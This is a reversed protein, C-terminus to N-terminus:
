RRSDKWDSMRSYSCIMPPFFSSICRHSCRPNASFHLTSQLPIPESTWPIIFRSSRIASPKITSPSHTKLLLQRLPLVFYIHFLASKQPTIMILLWQPSNSHFSTEHGSSTFRTKTSTYQFCFCILRFLNRVHSFRESWLEVSDGLKKTRPM